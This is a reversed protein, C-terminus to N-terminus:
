TAAFSHLELRELLDSSRHRTLFLDLRGSLFFACLAVDSPRAQLNKFGCAPRPNRGSVFAEYGGGALFFFSVELSWFSV